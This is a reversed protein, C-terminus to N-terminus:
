AAVVWVVELRGFPNERRIGSDELKGLKSLDSRRKRPTEFRISPWGRQGANHAYYRDLESDTLRVDPVDHFIGLVIAQLESLKPQILDAALHSTDPDTTRANPDVIGTALDFLATDHTETTPM